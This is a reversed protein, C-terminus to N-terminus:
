DEICGGEEGYIAAFQGWDVGASGRLREPLLHIYYFTSKLTSHGMYTSLYPLLNNVALGNDIWKMLNRTAFAHRLDYPRPNGHATLGSRKWCHGFQATMWKRGYPTKNHEFFWTRRGALSDYQQCLELMDASMIVHRDKHRKTERIYIDGTDLNIDECKIHLPESPRMGCCYMMRFMPPLVLEPRYKGNNTSAKYGDIANFLAVLEEDTFMYPEYPIRKLTYDDDPIYANKGLFNIYRCYQRLCAIFAAQTNVSYGKYCLWNDVMEMTITESDQYRSVCFDIFPMITTRYTATAYGAAARFDLMKLFYEELYDSIKM